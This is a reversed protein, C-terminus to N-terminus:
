DHNLLLGQQNYPDYHFCLVYWRPCYDDHITDKDTRKQQKHINNM